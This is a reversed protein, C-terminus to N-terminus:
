KEINQKRRKIEANRAKITELVRRYVRQSSQKHKAGFFNSISEFPIGRKRMMSALLDKETILGEKHMQLHNQVANKLRGIRLLEKGGTGSYNSSIRDILGLIQRPEMDKLNYIIKNPRRKVLKLLDIKYVHKLYKTFTGHGAYRGGNEGFTKYARTRLKGLEGDSRPPRLGPSVNEFAEIIIKQKQERRIAM